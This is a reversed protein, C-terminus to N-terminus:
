YTDRDAREKYVKIVFRATKPRFMAFIQKIAGSIFTPEFRKEWFSNVLINMPFIYPVRYIEIQKSTGFLSRVIQLKEPVEGFCEQQITETVCLTNLVANEIKQESCFKQFEKIEHDNMKDITHLILLHLLLTYIREPYIAHFISIAMEAYPNLINVTKDNIKDQRVYPLLKHKNMYVLHSAGVEKYIDIDVWEKDLPDLSKASTSDRLNIELAAEGLVAFHNKKLGEIVSRYEKDGDLILVDIDNPIAPFPFLSKVIVYKCNSENVVDITREWTRIQMSKIKRQKYLEDNLESILDTKNLSELFLLGIKNKVAIKYLEKIQNESLEVKEPLCYPSGIIRLILKIKEIDSNSSESYLLYCWGHSKGM